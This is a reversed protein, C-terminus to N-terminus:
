KMNTIKYQFTDTDTDLIDPEGIIVNKKLKKKM